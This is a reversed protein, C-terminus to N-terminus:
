TVKGRLSAILMRFRRRRKLLELVRNKGNWSEQTDLQALIADKNRAWDYIFLCTDLQNKCNISNSFAGQPDTKATLKLVAVADGELMKEITFNTGLYEQAFVSNYTEGNSVMRGKIVEISDPQEARDPHFIEGMMARLDIRTQIGIASDPNRANRQFAQQRLERLLVFLVLPLCLLLTWLLIKKQQPM